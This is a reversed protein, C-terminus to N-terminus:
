HYRKRIYRERSNKQGEKLFGQKRLENIRQIEETNKQCIIKFFESEFQEEKGTVLEHHKKCLTIGNFKETRLRASNAYKKIHHVELGKKVGCGPFQCSFEDRKLVDKRFRWYEPSYRSDRRRFKPKRLRKKAV